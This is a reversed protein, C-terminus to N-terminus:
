TGGAGRMTDPPEPHRATGNQSLILRFLAGAEARNQVSIAWGQRDAIRKVLPLGIGAGRTARRSRESHEFLCDLDRPPVGPGTDAVSLVGAELTICVSGRETYTFANRVLNGIAITLLPREVDLTLPERVEVTLSVPKPDLLHRHQKVVEEVVEGVRCESHGADDARKERALMLLTATLDSMGHVTRAIRELQQRTRDDLGPRVQLVEVAGQIVALPTRLEHSADASFAREREVFARLRELYREFAHALEAVEDHALGEAFASHLDDPSRERVRRALERVPAIVRGALWWGGGAALLMTGIIGSGLVLLLLRERREVQTRNHLMILQTDGEREVAAYYPIGDVSVESRGTPLGRLEPPRNDPRDARVLYGRVTATMPPLSAPNRELRAQYDDIEATLAEEILRRDLDRVTIYVWSGLALSVSGGILAFGVMVRLRLGLRYIM